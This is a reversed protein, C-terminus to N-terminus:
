RHLLRFRTELCGLNHLMKIKSIAYQLLVFNLGSVIDRNQRQERSDKCPAYKNLAPSSCELDLRM